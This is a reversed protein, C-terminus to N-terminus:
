SGFLYVLHRGRHAHTLTWALATGMIAYRALPTIALFTATPLSFALYINLLADAVTVLGWIITLLRLFAHFHPACAKHGFEAARKPHRGSFFHRAFYYVLPQQWLLSALMTGGFAGSLLSERALIFRTNGGLLLIGGSLVLSILVLTGMINVRRQRVLTAGMQFMPLTMTTLLAHLDGLHPSLVSYVVFPAIGDILLPPIVHHGIQRWEPALVPWRFGPPQASSRVPSRCILARLSHSLSVSHDM